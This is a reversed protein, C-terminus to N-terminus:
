LLLERINILFSEGIYVDAVFRTFTREEAIITEKQRTIIRLPWLGRAFSTGHRLAHELAATADAWGPETMEPTDLDAIRIHAEFRGSFGTDVLAVFTDGDIVRILTARYHWLFCRDWDVTNMPINSAPLAM